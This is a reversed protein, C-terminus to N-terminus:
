GQDLLADTTPQKYGFVQEFSFTKGEALAADAQQIAQMADPDSLTELTEQWADLEHENM